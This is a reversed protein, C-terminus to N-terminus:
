PAQTFELCVQKAPNNPDDKALYARYKAGPTLGEFTKFQNPAPPPRRDRRRGGNDDNSVDAVGVSSGQPFGMNAGTCNQLQNNIVQCVTMPITDLSLDGTRSAAIHATTRLPGDFLKINLTRSVPNPNGIVREQYTSTSDCRGLPPLPRQYNWSRVQALITNSNALARELLVVLDQIGQNFQNEAVRNEWGRSTWASAVIVNLSALKNIVQELLSDKNEDFSVCNPHYFNNGWGHDGPRRSFGGGGPGGGGPGNGGLGNGFGGGGPGGPRGGGPFGGPGGGPGGGPRGGGPFGGPGGPGGGPRGGGPGGNNDDDDCRRNDPGLRGTNKGVLDILPCVVQQDLVSSDVTAVLDRRRDPRVDIIDQILRSLNLTLPDMIDKAALMSNVVTTLVQGVAQDNRSNLQMQRVTTELATIQIQSANLQKDLCKGTSQDITIAEQVESQNSQPATKCSWAVMGTMCFLTLARQRM